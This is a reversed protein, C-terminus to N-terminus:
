PSLGELSADETDRDIGEFLDWVAYLAVMLAFAIGLYALPLIPESQIPDTFLIVVDFASLGFVGWLIAATFSIVLRTWQDGFDVFLGLSALTALVGLFVLTLETMAM